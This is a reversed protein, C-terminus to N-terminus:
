ALLAKRLKRLAKAEIQQIRAPCVNYEAGLQKQQVKHVVRSVMVDYERDTLASKAVALIQDGYVSLELANM